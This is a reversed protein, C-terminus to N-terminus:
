SRLRQRVDPLPVAGLTGIIHPYRERAAAPITQYARALAQQAQAAQQIAAKMARDRSLQSRTEMGEMMGSNGGWVNMSQASRNLGQASQLNGLASSYAGSAAEFAQKCAGTQAQISQLQLVSGQLDMKRRSLEVMERTPPSADVASRFIAQQEGEIQKVRARTAECQQLQGQQGQQVAVAHEIQAHVQGEDTSAADLLVRQAAVKEDRKDKGRWMKRFLTPNVNREISARRQRGKQQLSAQRTGLQQVIQAQSAIQHELGPIAAVTPAFHAAEASLADFQAVLGAIAGEGGGGWGGGM